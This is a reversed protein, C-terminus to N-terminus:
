LKKKEKAPTVPLSDEEQVLDLALEASGSKRRAQVKLKGEPIKEFSSVKNAESFSSLKKLKGAKKESKSDQSSDEDSDLNSSDDESLGGAKDERMEESRSDDSEELSDCVVEGKGKEEFVDRDIELGRVGNKKYGVVGGLDGEGARWGVLPKVVLSCTRPKGIRVFGGGGGGGKGEAELRIRGESVIKALISM